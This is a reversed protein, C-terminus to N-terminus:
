DVLHSMRAGLSRPRAELDKVRSGLLVLQESLHDVEARLATDTDRLEKMLTELARELAEKESLATALQRSLAQLTSDKDLSTDRASQVLIGAPTVTVALACNRYSAANRLRHVIDEDAMEAPFDAGRRVLHPGGDFWTNVDFKSLRFLFPQKLKESAM